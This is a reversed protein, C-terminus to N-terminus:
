GHFAGGLNLTAPAMSSAFSMGKLPRVRHPQMGAQAERSEIFSIASEVNDMSLGTFSVFDRNANSSKVILTLEAANGGVGVPSTNILWEGYQCQYGKQLEVLIEVGELWYLKTVLGAPVPTTKVVPVVGLLEVAARLFGATKYLVYEASISGGIVSASM